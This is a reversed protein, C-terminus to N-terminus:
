GIEPGGTTGDSCMVTASLPRPGTCSDPDCKAPPPTPCPIVTWGCTGDSRTVCTPGGTTGDSCMVTASLPRPGTCSDPGCKAPSPPPCPIVTWGCSGDSRTVCAPGGTTGDSCMVTASLPRPGTCSDPGCTVPPTSDTCTGTKKCALSDAGTSTQSEDGGCGAAIAILGFLLSSHVIYKM